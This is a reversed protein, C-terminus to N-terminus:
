KKENNKYIDNHSIKVWLNLVTCHYTMKEELNNAASECAKDTGIYIVTVATKRDCEWNPYIQTYKAQFISQKIYHKSTSLMSGMRSVSQIM